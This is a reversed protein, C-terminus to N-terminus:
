LPARSPGLREWPPGQSPKPASKLVMPLTPFTRTHVLTPGLLGLFRRFNFFVYKKHDKLALYGYKRPNKITSKSSTQPGRPDKPPRLPMRPPDQSSGLQSQSPGPPDRFVRCRMQLSWPPTQSGMKAIGLLTCIRKKCM